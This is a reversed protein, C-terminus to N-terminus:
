SMEQEKRQEFGDSITYGQLIKVITGESLSPSLVRLDYVSGKDMLEGSNREAEQLATQIDEAERVARTRQLKLTQMQQQFQQWGASDQKEKAHLLAQSAEHFLRNAADHPM